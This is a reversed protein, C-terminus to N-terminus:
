FVPVELISEDKVISVDLNRFIIVELLVDDFLVVVMNGCSVWSSPLSVFNDRPLEPPGSHELENVVVNIATSGTLGGFYM